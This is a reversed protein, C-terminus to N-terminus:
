TADKSEKSLRKFYRRHKLVVAYFTDLDFPKQLFHDAGAAYADQMTIHDTNASMAIILPKYHAMCCPSHQPKSSHGDVSRDGGVPMLSNRRLSNTREVSSSAAHSQKMEVIPPDDDGDGQKGEIQAVLRRYERMLELGDMIPMQIDVLVADFYNKSLNRAVLPIKAESTGQPVAICQDLTQRILKLAEHGNTTTVVHHGKGVFLMKLMKLIIPSDDVILVNLRLGGMVEAATDGLKAASKTLQPKPSNEPNSGSSSSDSYNDIENFVGYGSDKAELSNTTESCDSAEAIGEMTSRRPSSKWSSIRSTSPGLTHLSGMGNSSSIWLSSTSGDRMLFSDTSQLGAADGSHASHSSGAIDSETSLRIPIMFWFICGPGAKTRNLYGVGCSLEEEGGISTFVKGILKAKVGFHGGLSKVREALCFLGLGTGGMSRQANREPANFLNAIQESTVGVGFDEVEVRLMTISKEALSATTTTTPGDHASRRSIIYDVDDEEMTMIVEQNAPNIATNQDVIDNYDNPHRPMGRKDRQCGKSFPEPVSIYHHQICRVLCVTIPTGPNSFKNANGILCLMNDQLWSSDTTIYGLNDSREINIKAHEVTKKIHTVVNELVLSLLIPSYKPYLRLGHIIKSYDMCRDVIMMLQIHSQQLGELAKSSARVHEWIDKNSTESLIENEQRSSYRSSSSPSNQSSSSASSPKKAPQSVEEMCPGNKKIEPLSCVASSEPKGRLNNLSSQM